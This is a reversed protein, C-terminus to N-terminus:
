NNPIPPIDEDNVLLSKLDDVNGAKEWQPMGKKWVLTDSNLQDAAIMQKLVSIEFPGTAKDGVAVHYMDVPIPPPTM